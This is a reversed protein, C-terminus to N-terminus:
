KLSEILKKRISVDSYDINPNKNIFQYILDIKDKILKQAKNVGNENAYKINKNLILQIDKKFKDYEKSRYEKFYRNLLVSSLLFKLINKILFINLNKTNL